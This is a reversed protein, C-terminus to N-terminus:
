NNAPLNDKRESLKGFRRELKPMKRHMIIHKTPFKETLKDQKPKVSNELDLFQHKEVM